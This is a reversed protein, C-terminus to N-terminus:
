ALHVAAACRLKAVIECWLQVESHPANDGSDEELTFLPTTGLSRLMEDKSGGSIACGHMKCWVKLDLVTTIKSDFDLIETTKERIAYKIYDIGDPEM